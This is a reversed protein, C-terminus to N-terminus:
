RVRPSGHPSRVHPNAAPKDAFSSRRPTDVPRRRRHRPSIARLPPDRHTGPMPRRRLPTRAPAAPRFRALEGHVNPNRSTTASLSSSSQDGCCIAWHSRRSNQRHRTSASRGVFRDITFKYIGTAVLTKVGPITKVTEPALTRDSPRASFFRECPRPWIRLCPRWGCAVSRPPGGPLHGAMPLAIEHESHAWRRDGGENVAGGTVRHDHRQGLAILGVRNARASISWM